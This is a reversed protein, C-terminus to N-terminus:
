SDNIEKKMKVKLNHSNAWSAHALWGKISEIFVEKSIEGNKFLMIKREM